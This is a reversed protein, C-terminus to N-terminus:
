NYEYRNTTCVKIRHHQFMFIWSLSSRYCPRQHLTNVTNSKCTRSGVLFPESYMRWRLESLNYLSFCINISSLPEFLHATTLVNIAWGNLEGNWVSLNGPRYRDQEVHHRAISLPMEVSQHHSKLPEEKTVSVLWYWGQIDVLGYRYERCSVNKNIQTLNQPTEYEIFMTNDREICTM